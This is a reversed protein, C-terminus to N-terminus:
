RLWRSVTKRVTCFYRNALPLITSCATFDSSDGITLPFTSVVAPEGKQGKDGTAGTAGTAGKEGKDGTEGKDGKAGTAGTDGEDGKDGKDGQDGQDGQDGKDGKLRSFYFALFREEDEVDSQGNRTIPKAQATSSLAVFPASASPNVYGYKVVVRGDADRSESRYSGDDSEYYFSYTGDARVEHHRSLPGDLRATSVCGALM